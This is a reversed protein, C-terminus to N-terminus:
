AQEGTFGRDFFAERRGPRGGALGACPYEVIGKEEEGAADGAGTIDAGM